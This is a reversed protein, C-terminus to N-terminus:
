YRTNLSGSRIRVPQGFSFGRRGFGGYSGFGGFGIFSRRRINDQYIRTQFDELALERERLEANRANARDQSALAARATRARIREAELSAQTASLPAPVGSPANHRFVKVGQECSVTFSGNLSGCNASAAIPFATAAGLAILFISTRTM